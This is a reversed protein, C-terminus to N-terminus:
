DRIHEIAKEEGTNPGWKRAVNIKHKCVLADCIAAPSHGSRRAGDLALIVVDVWELLDNPNASIEELEKRIHDVIGVSRNGVGFVSNSWKGLDEIFDVLHLPAPNDSM